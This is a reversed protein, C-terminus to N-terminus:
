EAVERARSPLADLADGLLRALSRRYASLEPAVATDACQLLCDVAEELDGRGLGTVHLAM